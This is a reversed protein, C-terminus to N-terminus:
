LRARYQGFASILKSLLDQPSDHRIGAVVQSADVVRDGNLVGLKFDDFFVLRM